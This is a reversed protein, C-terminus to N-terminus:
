ISSLYPMSVISLPFILGQRREDKALIMEVALQCLVNKDWKIKHNTPSNRTTIMLMLNIGTTTVNFTDYIGAFRTSLLGVNQDWDTYALWSAAEVLRIVFNLYLRGMKDFEM